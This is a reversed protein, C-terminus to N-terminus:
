GAEPEAPRDEPRRLEKLLDRETLLAKERTALEYADSMDIADFACAAVCFGCCMCRGIDVHFYEVVKGDGEAPSTEMTILTDPCAKVCLGCAVCKPNGNEDTNMVLVGRTRAPLQRKEYPYQVTISKGLLHGLTTKFGKYFGLAM